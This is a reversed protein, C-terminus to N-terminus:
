PSQQTTKQEELGDYKRASFAKISRRAPSEHTSRHFSSLAGDQRVERGNLNENTTTIAPVKPDMNSRNVNHLTSNMLNTPPPENHYYNYPPHSPHPMQYAPAFANPYYYPSPYFPMPHSVYHQFRSPSPSSSRHTSRPFQPKPSESGQRSYSDYRSRHGPSVSRRFEPENQREPNKLISPPKEYRLSPHANIKGDMSYTTTKPLRTDSRDYTHPINRNFNQPDNFDSFRVGQYRSPSERDPTAPRDYPSPSRPRYQSRRSSVYEVDARNPASMNVWKEATIAATLAENFTAPELTSMRNQIRTPLGRIFYEAALDELLSINQARLNAEDVGSNKLKAAARVISSLRDHFNLVSEGSRMYATSILDTYYSLTRKQSFRDQLHTRLSDLNPFEKGDLSAKAKGTLRSIVGQLFLQKQVPDTLREDYSEVDQLWGRLSTNGSYFPIAMLASQTMSNTQVATFAARSENLTAAMTAMNEALRRDYRLLAAKRQDGDAISEIQELTHDAM